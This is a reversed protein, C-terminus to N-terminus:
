FTPDNWLSEDFEYIEPGHDLIVSLSAIVGDACPAILLTGDPLSAAMPRGWLPCAAVREVDSPSSDPRVPAPWGDARVAVIRRTGTPPTIM